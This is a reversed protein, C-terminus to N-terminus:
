ASKMGMSVYNKSKMKESFNVEINYERFCYSLLSIYEPGGDQSNKISFEIKVSEPNAQSRLHGYEYFNAELNVSFEFALKICDSKATYNLAEEYSGFDM